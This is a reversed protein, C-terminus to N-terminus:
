RGKRKAKCLKRKMANAAKIKEEIEMAEFGIRTYADDLAALHENLQALNMEDIRAPPVFDRSPSGMGKTARSNKRATPVDDSKKVAPVSAPDFAITAPASLPPAVRGSRIANAQRILPTIEQIVRRFSINGHKDCLSMKRVDPVPPRDTVPLEGEWVRAVLAQADQLLMDGDSAFSLRECRDLFRDPFKEAHNTTFVVVSRPPLEELISLWLHAAKTTMCDAENVIVIKWGSGAGTAFRLSDASNEVTEGDQKGADITTIGWFPDCGLDNALARAVSTKGVGTAGEFLFATPYPADLFTGLQNVVSGQGVVESLTRPRYKELLNEIPEPVGFALKPSREPYGLAFGPIPAPSKMASVDAHAPAVIPSM